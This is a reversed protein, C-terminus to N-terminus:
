PILSAARLLMNCCSGGAEGSAAWGVESVALGAAIEVRGRCGGGCNGDLSGKVGSGPGSVLEFGDSEDWGSEVM